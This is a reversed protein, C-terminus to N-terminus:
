SIQPQDIKLYSVTAFRGAGKLIYVGQRWEWILHTTVEM